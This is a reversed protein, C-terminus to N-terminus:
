TEMTANKKHRGCATGVCQAANMQINGQVITDVSSPVFVRVVTTTMVMGMTVPKLPRDFVTVVANQRNTGNLVNDPKGNTNM